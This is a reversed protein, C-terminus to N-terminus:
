EFVMTTPYNVGNTVQQTKRFIVTVLDGQNVAVSNVINSSVNTGNSGDVNLSLATDSGNVILTVNIQGAVPDGSPAVFLNKFTGSRPIPITAIAVQDPSNAGRVEGYMVVQSDITTGMFPAGVYILQGPVSGSLTSADRIALTGDELRVVISDATNNITMDTVKLAGEIEAQQASANSILTLMMIISGFLFTRRM